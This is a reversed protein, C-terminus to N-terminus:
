ASREEHESATLPLFLQLSRATHPPIGLVIKGERYAPSGEPSERQDLPLPLREIGPIVDSRDPLIPSPTPLDQNEQELSKASWLLADKAHLPALLRKPETNVLGWQSLLRAYVGEEQLALLGENFREILWTGSENNSTVLYVGENPPPATAIYLEQPYFTDVYTYAAIAPFIVGDIVGHELDALAPLIDSYEKFQISPDVDLSPPTSSEPIGVIRKSGEGWEQVSTGVPLVLVPGTLFYPKSFLFRGEYLYSPKLTTLIAQVEGQELAALLEHASALTLRVRFHEQTAIMALLNRNFASFNREKGLLQLEEWQREQGITYERILTQQSCARLLLFSIACLAMMAILRM